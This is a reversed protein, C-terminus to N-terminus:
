FELQNLEKFVKGLYTSLDSATFSEKGMDLLALDAAKGHIFTGLIAAELPTYSQALLSSIVGTLTDGLGATAMAPNGTSN